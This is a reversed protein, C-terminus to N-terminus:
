VIHNRKFVRPNDSHYVLLPKNKFDESANECLLLTLWDKMPKHGPLAKEEKTIFTRKPMKKWILGIEDANFMQQLVYEEDQILDNFESLNRLGKRTQVLQREM